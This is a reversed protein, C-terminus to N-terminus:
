LRLSGDIMEYSKNSNNYIKDDHTAIAVATNRTKCINQFLEFIMESNKRDLNGTPEDAIILGPDNILARAIAVRQQQGGSLKYVPYSLRDEMGLETLLTRAKETLEARSHTNLKLAPLLVNQLVNFENLLYHSQYVFGINRNRFESLFSQSQGKIQTGNILLEGEFDTDLTSLIYLLTSKGSGSKGYISVLEGEAVEFTNNQLVYHREPEYFQKGLANAKLIHAAATM